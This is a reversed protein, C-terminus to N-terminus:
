NRLKNKWTSLRTFLSVVIEKGSDSTTCVGMRARGFILSGPQSGVVDAGAHQKSLINNASTFSRGSGIQSGPEPPESSFQLQCAITKGIGQGKTAITKQRVIAKNVAEAVVLTSADVVPAGVGQVLLLSRLLLAAPSRKCGGM